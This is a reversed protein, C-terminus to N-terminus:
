AIFGERRRPGHKLFRVYLGLHVYNFSFHQIKDIGNRPFEDVLSEKFIISAQQTVTVHM